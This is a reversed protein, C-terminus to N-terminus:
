VGMLKGDRDRCKYFSWVVCHSKIGRLHELIAYVNIKM